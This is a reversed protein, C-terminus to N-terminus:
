GLGVFLRSDLDALADTEGAAAALAFVVGPRPSRMARALAAYGRPGVHARAKQGLGEWATLMERIGARASAVLAFLENSTLGDRVSHRVVVPRGELQVWDDPGLAAGPPLSIRVGEKTREAVRFGAQRVIDGLSWGDDDIENSLWGKEVFNRWM